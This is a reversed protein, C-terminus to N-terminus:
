HCENVDGGDLLWTPAATCLEEKRTSRALSAEILKLIIICIEHNLSVAVVVVVFVFFM